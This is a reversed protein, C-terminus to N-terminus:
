RWRVSVRHIRHNVVAPEDMLLGVIEGPKATGTGTVRLTFVVDNNQVTLELLYPRIDITRARKTKNDIREVPLSTAEMVRRIREAMDHPLDHEPRYRYTVTDPQPREGAGLPRVGRLLMDKPLQRGLTESLEDPDIARELTIVIVDAESSVGPPRPLPIMIRPHPNFGESFRVPLNARAIARRFLRLTDHHSIFRLDGYVSFEIWWRLRPEACENAPESVPMLCAHATDKAEPPTTPPLVSETM